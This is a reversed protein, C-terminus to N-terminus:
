NSYSTKRRSILHTHMHLSERRMNEFKEMLTLNLTKCTKKKLFFPNVAIKIILPLPLPSPIALLVRKGLLIHSLLVHVLFLLGNQHLYTGVLAVAFLDSYILRVNHM